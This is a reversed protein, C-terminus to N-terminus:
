SWGHQQLHWYKMRKIVSYYEIIYIGNYIHTYTHTYIYIVDEKDMGRNITVQTAELEESNYISNSHVNLHMYTKSNSNKDKRSIPWSHVLQIM